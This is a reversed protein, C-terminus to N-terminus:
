RDRWGIVGFGLRSVARGSRCGTAAAVRESNESILDLAEAPM